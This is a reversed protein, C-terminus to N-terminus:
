FNTAKNVIKKRSSWASLCLSFLLEAYTDFELKTYFGIKLTEIKIDFVSIISVAIVRSLAVINV